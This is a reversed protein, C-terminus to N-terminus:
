KGREFLYRFLDSLEQASLGATLGDPMISGVDSRSAINAKAIVELGGAAFNRLTLQETTEAIRYGQLNRGDKTTVQTLLYGEKVQRKPWLVSEVIAEPSMARGVASLDPGIAGGQAEIRHCSLCARTAASAIKEGRRADGTAQASAVLRAVLGADYAGVTEAMGATAQLAQRLTPADAGVEAMWRLALRATEAGPPTQRWATLLTAQGTKLELLPALLPGIEATDRCGALAAV